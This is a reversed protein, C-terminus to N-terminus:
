EHPALLQLELVEVQALAEVRVARAPIGAGHGGRRHAAEEGPTPQRDGRQSGDGVVAPEHAREARRDGIEGRVFPERGVTMDLHSGALRRSVPGWAAGLPCHAAIAPGPRLIRTTSSSGHIAFSSSNTTLSAPWTATTHLSPLSAMSFNASTIGSRTSSSTTSGFSSPRLTQSCMLFDGMPRRVGTSTKLPM